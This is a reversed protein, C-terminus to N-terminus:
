FSTGCIRLSCFDICSTGKGASYEAKLTGDRFMNEGVMRRCDNHPASALAPLCFLMGGPCLLDTDATLEVAEGRGHGTRGDNPGRDLTATGTGAGISSGGTGCAAILLASFAFACRPTSHPCSLLPDLRSLRSLTAGFLRDPLPLGELAVGAVGALRGFSRSTPANIGGSSTGFTLPPEIEIRSSSKGSSLGVLERGVSVACGDLPVSESDRRDGVCTSHLGTAFASEAGEGM